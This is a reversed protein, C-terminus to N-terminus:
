GAIAVRASFAKATTIQAAANRPPSGQRGARPRRGLLEAGSVDRRALAVGDPKTMMMRTSGRGGAASKRGTPRTPISVRTARAGDAQAGCQHQAQKATGEPQRARIVVRLGEARSTPGDGPLRSFRASCPAPPPGGAPGSPSTLTGSRGSRSGHPRATQRGPLDRAPWLRTLDSPDSTRALDLVAGRWCPSGSRRWRSRASCSPPRRFPHAIGGASAALRAAGTRGCIWSSRDDRAHSTDISRGALPRLLVREALASLSRRRSRRRLQRPPLQRPAMSPRRLDPLRRAHLVRRLPSTLRKMSASSDAHASASCPM